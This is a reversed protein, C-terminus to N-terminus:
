KRCDGPQGIKKEVFYDLIKEFVMFLIFILVLIAVFKNLKHTISLATYGFFHGLSLFIAVWLLSAKAQVRLFHWFEIKLFGLVLITSHNLGYLFKSIFVLKFPNCEITPFAKKVRREVFKMFRQQPYKAQILRGAWYWLIDGFLVGAYSVWFVDFLDFAGLHSLVGAALMFLEGEFILSFFLIAYGTYRHAEVLSIFLNVTEM